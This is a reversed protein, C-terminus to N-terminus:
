SQGGARFSGYREIHEQTTLHERNLCACTTWQDDETLAQGTCNIHKGQKCEPCDPTRSV